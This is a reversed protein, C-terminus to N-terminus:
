KGESCSPKGVLVNKNKWFDYKCIITEKRIGIQVVLTNVEPKRYGSESRYKDIITYTTCSKNTSVIKNLTTISFLLVSSIFLPLVVPTFNDPQNKNLRHKEFFPKVKKYLYSGILFGISLGSFSILYPHDYKPIDIFAIIGISIFGITLVLLIVLLIWPKPQEQKTPNM